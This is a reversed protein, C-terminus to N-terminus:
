CLLLSKTFWWGLCEEIKPQYQLSYQLAANVFVNIYIHIESSLIRRTRAGPNKAASFKDGKVVHYYIQRNVLTVSSTINCSLLCLTHSIGPSVYQFVCSFHRDVFLKNFLRESM